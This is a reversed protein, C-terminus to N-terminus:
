TESESNDTMQNFEVTTTNCCMTFPYSPAGNEGYAKRGSLYTLHRSSLRHKVLGCHELFLSVLYDGSANAINGWGCHAMADNALSCYMRIAAHHNRSLTVCVELM